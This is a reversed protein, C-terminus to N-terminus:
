HVLSSVWSKREQAMVLLVMRNYTELGKPQNNAKLFSDYFISSIANLKNEYSLWYNHEIAYDHRVDKSITAKLAKYAVTDRRGLSYMFESVALHYGSYRLLRDNSHIAVVFGAFDAEDEAGYGMQHSMEHCAVFPRNFVPMQYNIQAESTFPNYYGSTGMFNLLFTLISPKVGPHWAGFSPSSASLSRIAQETTQYITSNSQAMDAATVRARTANASDILLQTVKHLDATTFSTDRLNLREAASPRFYNMGWFLYFALIGIEVGILLGLLMLGAEKFKKKFLVKFFSVTKYILYVIVVIYVVDGVSFPFLNFVPHLIYCIFIYFGKSYYREVWASHDAFQMLILIALALSLIVVIRKLLPKERLNYRM